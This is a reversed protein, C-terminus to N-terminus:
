RDSPGVPAGAEIIREREVLSTLDLVRRDDLFERAMEKFLREIGVRYRRGLFPPVAIRRGRLASMLSVPPASRTMRVPLALRSAVIAPTASFTAEESLLRRRARNKAAITQVIRTRRGLPLFYISRVVDRHQGIRFARGNRQDIRVPNWPMDFHIVVGARQLNLGEAALDTCVLVDISGRRFAEIADLPRSDRSTMFGSHRVRAVAKFIEMATAIASTFVLIPDQTTACIRVLLDTKTRPAADIQRRLADLRALEARIDAANARVDDGAFLDWFLVEQFAEGEEDGFARRYDRKTLTRGSALCDLAREYFRSQRRLSELLAAESSELRRWLVSRLLSHHGDILPFQLEDIAAPPLEHRVVDRQLEGFRLPDGLVERGRRIVLENMVIVLEDNRHSRFADDISAVGEARLADDAAILSVLAHLDDPSNCIPTATVLVLRAGISRRALADYRQTHPNRFAHAEDVIILREGKGEPVFPESVIRDHTTVRASVNFLELTEQWQQVLGAPVILETAIGPTIASAAVYSKGM